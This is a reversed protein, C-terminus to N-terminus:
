FRWWPQLPPQLKKLCHALARAVYREVTRKPIGMAAAIEGQAMGDVRHFLFVHRCVEPLEDLAALCRKLADRIEAQREPGPNPCEAMDLDADPDTWESRRLSKTGHDNAVNATVRYLYARPNDLTAPDTYSVLRLYADHVVDQAEEGTRRRAFAELERAHDEYLGSIVQNEVRAM